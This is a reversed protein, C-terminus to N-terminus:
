LNRRLFYPLKFETCKIKTNYLITNTSSSQNNEDTNETSSIANTIDMSNNLPVQNYIKKIYPVKVKWFPNKTCSM